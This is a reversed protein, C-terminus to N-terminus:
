CAIYLERKSAPEFRELHAEMAKKYDAHDADGLTKSAKGEAM